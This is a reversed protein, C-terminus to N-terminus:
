KKGLIIFQLCSAISYNNLFVGTISGRWQEDREEPERMLAKKKSGNQSQESPKRRDVSRNFSISEVGKQNIEPESGHSFQNLTLACPYLLQFRRQEGNPRFLRSPLASQRSCPEGRIVRCFASLSLHRRSSFSNHCPLVGRFM